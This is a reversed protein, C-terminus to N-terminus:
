PGEKASVTVPSAAAALRSPRVRAGALAGLIGGVVVLWEPWERLRSAWTLESRRPVSATLVDQTFLSTQDVVTGDPRIIASVGVTSAHVVARGTEVARLRSMALQQVSEDSYGFTANNTQVVLVQAGADVTDAVLHDVLVEFCILDGVPVTGGADLPVEVLGVEGGAAMDGAQDILPTIARFLERYPVYEAFPVPARKVYEDVPGRGPLWLLSTNRVRGDSGRVLTGLLTPADVDDVAASIVQAADANRFPDIDSANEPWVVLDPQEVDGEAVADALDRTAAAHNDLVARREANFELGPRPVNGQVASVTLSGEQPETPTPVALGCLLVATAAVVGGAAPLWRRGRAAVAAELLFAGVLAVAFSVVPAGGLAALALTPADTQSFALRSWGFGGFPLRGQAAEVAIWSAAMVGGRLLVGPLGGAPLRQALCLAIGALAGFLAETCSLVVWPLAGVVSGTWEILPLQFALGFMYGLLAGSRLGRARVALALGAVALPALWWLGVGPFALWAGLGAVVALAAAVVHPLPRPPM